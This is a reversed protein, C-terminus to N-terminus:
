VKGAAGLSKAPGSASFTPSAGASGHGSGTSSMRRTTAVPSPHMPPLQGPAAHSPGDVVGAAGNANGNAAATRQVAAAAGKLTETTPRAAKASDLDPSGGGPPSLYDADPQSMDLLM